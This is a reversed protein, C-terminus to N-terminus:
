SSSEQRSLPSLQFRAADDRNGGGGRRDDVLSLNPRWSPASRKARRCLGMRQGKGVRRRVRRRTSRSRFCQMADSGGCRGAWTGKKRAAPRRCEGVCSGAGGTLALGIIRVGWDLLGLVGAKEAGPSLLCPSIWMWADISQGGEGMGGGCVSSALLALLGLPAFVSSSSGYHGRGGGLCRRLRGRRLAVGM